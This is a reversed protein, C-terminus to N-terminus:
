AAVISRKALGMWFGDIPEAPAAEPDTAAGLTVFLPAFHEIRPHAYPMGPAEERFRMLGDVDGAAFREHAWADFEVSWGPAVADASPDTLFPLGHTTFGSGIIMVGEERLEALRRGLGFLAGPELTPLSVQLTPIDADPYMVTLPVYAGHDLRRRADRHVPQDDPAMAAIRDALEPAGPSPYVTRYYREPFGGFDYTLPVRSDTAGLTLPAAEWHASVVLIQEPRPLEAALGRLQAVWREDDVLPPAGHSLFLAPMTTM